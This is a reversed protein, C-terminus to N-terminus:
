MHPSQIANGEFTVKYGAAIVEKAPRQGSQAAKDIWAKGAEIDQEVGRGLLLAVGWHFQGLSYGTEAAKKQWYAATELQAPHGPLDQEYLYALYIMSPANGRKSCETFFMIADDHNGGKDLLYAADCTFGIRDPFLRLQELYHRWSYDVPNLTGIEDSNEEVAFQAHAPGSWVLPLLCLFLIAPIKTM